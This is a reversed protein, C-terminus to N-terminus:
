LMRLHATRDGRPGRVSLSPKRTQIACEQTHNQALAAHAAGEFQELARRADAPTQNGLSSHPRVKNCYNRWLALKQRANSLSDFWEENLLADRRSGNFSQIFGNQQPKGPDICHWEVDNVNAWNLVARSTFETENDSVICAPKGYVTCARRVRPHGECELPHHRGDPM